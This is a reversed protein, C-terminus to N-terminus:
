CVNKMIEDDNENKTKNQKYIYIYTTTVHKILQMLTMTWYFLETHLYVKDLAVTGNAVCVFM